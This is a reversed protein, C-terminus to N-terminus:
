TKSGTPGLYNQQSKRTYLLTAVDTYYGKAASLQQAIQYGAFHCVSAQREIIGLFTPSEIHGQITLKTIM